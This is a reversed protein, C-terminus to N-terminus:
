SMPGVAKSGRWLFAHKVIKLARLFGDGGQDPNFRRDKLGSNLLCSSSWWPRDMRTACPNLDM